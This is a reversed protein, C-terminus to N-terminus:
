YSYATSDYDRYGGPIPVVVEHSFGLALHLSRGQVHAKYGVGVVEMSKTFGQSVGKVVNSIQRSDTGWVRGAKKTQSLPSVNVSGDSVGVNLDESTFSYHLSGLKGKASFTAGDVSVTIGEPIPISNKGARSM